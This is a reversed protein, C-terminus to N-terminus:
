KLITESTRLHSMVKNDYNNELPQKQIKVTPSITKCIARRCTRPSTALKSDLRQLLRRLKSAALELQTLSWEDLTADVFIALEGYRAKVSPRKKKRPRPKGRRRVLAKAQVGTLEPHVEGDRVLRDLIDHELRSLTDLITWGCPLNLM